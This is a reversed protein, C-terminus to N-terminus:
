QLAYLNGDATPVFLVGHAYAVGGVIPSTAEFSWLKDGTLANVAYLSNDTSGAFVVNNVIALATNLAGVSGKAPFKWALKGTDAELAYLIGRDTSAYVKDHALALGSRVQGSVAYVWRTGSQTPAPALSWIYLQTWWYNITREAPKNTADINIAFVSGRNSGFYASRRQTDIIAASEVARDSVYDLTIKGTRASMVAFSRDGTGLVLTDGHVVPPSQLSSAIHHDWRREGTQADLTIVTGDLGSAYVVGDRVNAPHVISEGASTKWIVQGTAADLATVYTDLQGILVRDGAVTPAGRVPGSAAFEWLRVGTERDLGALLNDGYTVFVRDGAVVPAGILAQGLDMKWKIAGQPLSSDTALFATGEPNQRYYAWENPASVSSLNGSPPAMGEGPGSAPLFFWVTVAVALVAPVGQIVLRRVLRKRRYERVQRDAEEQSVIPQDALSKWCNTCSEITAPNVHYCAACVILGQTRDSFRRQTVRLATVDAHRRFLAPRDPTQPIPPTSLAAEQPSLDAIAIRLAKSMEEASAYRGRPDPDLARLVVAEVQSPLEPHIATPVRIGHSKQKAFITAPNSGTVPSVGTLMEYLLCGLAYIDTAPTPGPHEELEPALYPPYPCNLSERMAPSVGHALHAGGPNWLLAAGTSARWVINSPRVDTHVAGAQHLAELGQAVQTAIDLLTLLPMQRTIIDELTTDGPQHAYATWIADGDRGADLVPLLHPNAAARTREVAAYYRNLADMSELAATRPLVVVCDTQTDREKALLISLLTTVDLPRVTEFQEQFSVSISRL